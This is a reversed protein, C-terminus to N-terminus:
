KYVLFLIVLPTGFLYKAILWLPVYYIALIFLFHDIECYYIHLELSCTRYINFMFDCKTFDYSIGNSM